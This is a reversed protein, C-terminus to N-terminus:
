MRELLDFGDQAVIGIAEMREAPENVFLIIVLQQQMGARLQRDVVDRKRGPHLIRRMVM